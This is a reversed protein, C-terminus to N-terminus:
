GNRLIDRWTVVAMDGTGATAVEVDTVTAHVTVDTGAWVIVVVITIFSHSQALLAERM